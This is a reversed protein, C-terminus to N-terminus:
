GNHPRLEHPRRSYSKRRHRDHNQKNSIPYNILIPQTCHTIWVILVLLLLRMIWACFLGWQRVYNRQKAPLTITLISLFIVNDIGLVVELLILTFLSAIVDFVIVEM